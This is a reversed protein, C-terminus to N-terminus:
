LKLREIEEPSPLQLVLKRIKDLLKQHEQKFSELATPVIKQAVSQYLCSFHIILKEGNKCRVIAYEQGKEITEECRTCNLKKWLM